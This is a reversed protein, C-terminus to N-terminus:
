LYISPFKLIRWLSQWSKPANRRLPSLIMKFPNALSLRRRSITQDEEVTGGMVSLEKISDVRGMDYVGVAFIFCKSVNHNLNWHCNQLTKSNTKRHCQMIVWLAWRWRNINTKRDSFLLCFYSGNFYVASFNWALM